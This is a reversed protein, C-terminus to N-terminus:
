MSTVFSRTVWACAAPKFTAAHVAFEASTQSLSISAPTSPIM